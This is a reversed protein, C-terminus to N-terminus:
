LWRRVTRKYKLWAEGFTEELKKEEARVFVIDMFIVFGVVVVYPVLSGLLMVIGLLILAFGLYMPHRSIRFVGETVLVTPKELPKVGTNHKKFARDAMLNIVIGLGLPISGILNWPFSLVRIGPLLSHLFVIIVISLFFYVPPIIKILKLDAM